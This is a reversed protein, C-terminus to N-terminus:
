ASQHDTRWARSGFIRVAAYALTRRWSAVGEDEMIRRFLNDVELRSFTYPPRVSGSPPKGGYEYLFDHILPAIVSLEFPAILWWFARPVSSLDFVFGAAVTIVHSGDDYSYNAELRRDKGGVYSIIPAPLRSRRVEVRAHDLQKVSARV